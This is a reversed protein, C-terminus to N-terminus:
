LSRVRPMRELMEHVDFSWSGRPVRCPVVYYVPTSSRKATRGFTPENEPANPDFKICKWLAARRARGHYDADPMPRWFFLAVLCRAGVLWFARRCIATIRCGDFPSISDPQVPVLFFGAYALPPAFCQEDTARYADYVPARRLM